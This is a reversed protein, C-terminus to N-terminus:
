NDNLNNDSLDLIKMMFKEKSNLTDIVANSTDISLLTAGLNLKILDFKLLLEIIWKKCIINM